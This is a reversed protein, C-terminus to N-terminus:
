SIAEWYPCKEEACRRAKSPDDQGCLGCLFKPTQGDSDTHAESKRPRGPPRSILEVADIEEQTFKGPALTCLIEVVNHRSLRRRSTGTWAEALADLRERLRNKIRFTTFGNLDFASSDNPM